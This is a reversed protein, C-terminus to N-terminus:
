RLGWGLEKRKTKCEYIMEAVSSVGRCREDYAHLVFAFHNRSLAWGFCRATLYIRCQSILTISTSSLGIMEIWFRLSFDFFCNHTFQSTVHFYCSCFPHSSLEVWRNHPTIPPMEVSTQISKFVLSMNLPSNGWPPSFFYFFFHYRTRSAFRVGLSNTSGSARVLMKLRSHFRMSRLSVDVPCWVNGFTLSSVRSSYRPNESVM